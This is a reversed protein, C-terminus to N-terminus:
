SICISTIIGIIPLLSFSRYCGNGAPIQPLLTIDCDVAPSHNTVASNFSVMLHSVRCFGSSRMDGLQIKNEVFRPYPLLVIINWVQSIAM